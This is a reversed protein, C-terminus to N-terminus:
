DHERSTKGDRGEKNNELKSSVAAVVAAWTRDTCRAGVRFNLRNLLEEFFDELLLDSVKAYRM